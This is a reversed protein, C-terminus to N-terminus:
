HITHMWRQSLWQNVTDAGFKDMLYILAQDRHHIVLNM